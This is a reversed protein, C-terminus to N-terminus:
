KNLQQDGKKQYLLARSRLATLNNENYLLATSYNLLAEDIKNIHEYIKGKLFYASDCEVDLEIASNVAAEADETEGKALHIEGKLLFYPLKFDVIQNLEILAGNVEGLEFLIKARLFHVHEKEKLELSRSLYKLAKEKYGLHNNIEGYVVFARTNKPDLHIAQEIDKLAQQFNKFNEPSSSLENAHFLLEARLTLADSNDPNLGLAEDILTLAYKTKKLGAYVEALLTLHLDDKTYFNQSWLLIEKAEELRGLRLLIEAKLHLGDRNNKIVKEFQIILELAKDLDIEAHCLEKAVEYLNRMDEPVLSLAKNFAEMALPYHKAALHIQGLFRYGNADSENKKLYYELDKIAEQYRDLYYYCKARLHPYFKIQNAKEHILNLNDLAESYNKLEVLYYSKMYLFYFSEVGTKLAQDILKLGEEFKRQNYHNQLIVSLAVLNDPDIMLAQNFNMTSIEPTQSKTLGLLTYTIPNKSVEESSLLASIKEKLEKNKANIKNKLSIIAVFLLGNNSKLVQLPTKFYIDQFFEAKYFHPTIKFYQFFNKYLRELIESYQEEKALFQSIFFFLVKLIPDPNAKRNKDIGEKELVDLFEQCAIFAEEISDQRGCVAESWLDQIEQFSFHYSLSFYQSIFKKDESIKKYFFSLCEKKLRDDVPYTSILKLLDELMNEAKVSEQESLSKYQINDNFNRSCAFIFSFFHGVAEKQYFPGQIPDNLVATNLLNSHEKSVLAVAESPLIFKIPTVEGKKYFLFTSTETFSSKNKLCVFIDSISQNVIEIKKHSDVKLKKNPDYVSIEANEIKRKLENLSEKDEILDTAIEILQEKKTGKLLDVVSFCSSSNYKNEGVSYFSM